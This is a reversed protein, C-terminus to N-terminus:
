VRFPTENSGRGLHTLGVALVVRCSGKYQNFTGPVSGLFVALNHATDLCVLSGIKAVINFITKLLGSGM